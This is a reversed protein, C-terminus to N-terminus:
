YFNQYFTDSSDIFFRNTKKESSPKPKSYKEAVENIMKEINEAPINEDQECLLDIIVSINEFLEKANKSAAIKKIDNLIKSINNLNLDFSHLDALMELYDGIIEVSNEVEKSIFFDLKDLFYQIKNDNLLSTFGPQNWLENLKNKIAEFVTLFLEPEEEPVEPSKEDNLVNKNASKNRSRTEYKEKAKKLDFNKSEVVNDSEQLSLLLPYFAAEFDFCLRPNPNPVDAMEGALPASEHRLGLVIGLLIFFSHM